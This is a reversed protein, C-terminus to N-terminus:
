LVIYRVVQDEDVESASAPVRYVKRTQGSTTLGPRMGYGYWEWGVGLGNRIGGHIRMENSKIKNRGPGLQGISAPKM